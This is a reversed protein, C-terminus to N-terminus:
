PTDSLGEDILEALFRRTDRDVDDAVFVFVKPGWGHDTSQETDFGLVDSGEGILAAARDSAALHPELMPAVVEFWYDRALELGSVFAPM